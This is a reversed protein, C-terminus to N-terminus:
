FGIALSLEVQTKDLKLEPRFSFKNKRKWEDYVRAKGAGDSYRIIGYIIAAIGVGVTIAGVARVEDVNSTCFVNPGSIDDCPDKKNLYIIGTLVSSAGLAAIIGGQTKESKGSPPKNAWTSRISKDKETKLSDTEQGFVSNTLCFSSLIMLYLMLKFSQKMRFLHPVLRFNTHNTIM